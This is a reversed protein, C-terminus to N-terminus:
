PMLGNRRNMEEKTYDMLMNIGMKSTEGERSNHAEIEALKKSFENLRFNYEAKTGYTKGYEAMFQMFQTEAPTILESTQFLSFQGAPINFLIIIAALGVSAISTSIQKNM